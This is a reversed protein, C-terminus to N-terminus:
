THGNKGAITNTYIGDKKSRDIIKEIVNDICNTREDKINLIHDNNVHGLSIHWPQFKIADVGLNKAFDIFREELTKRM